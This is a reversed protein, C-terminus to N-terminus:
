YIITGVSNINISSSAITINGQKLDLYITSVSIPLGSVKNFVIILNGGLPITSTNYYVFDTLFYKKIYKFSSTAFNSDSTYFLSFSPKSSTPNEFYVGWYSDKEQAISRNRAEMLIAAIQTTTSRLNTINRRKYFNSFIVISLIMILAVSILLETLSFGKKILNKINQNM